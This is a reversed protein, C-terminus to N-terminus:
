ARRFLYFDPPSLEDFPLDAARARQKDVAVDLAIDINGIFADGDALVSDEDGMGALFPLKPNGSALNYDQALHNATHRGRM